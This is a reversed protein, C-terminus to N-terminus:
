LISMARDYADYPNTTNTQSRIVHFHHTVSLEWPFQVKVKLWFNFTPDYEINFDYDEVRRQVFAKAFYDYVEVMVQDRLFCHNLVKKLDEEIQSLAIYSNRTM